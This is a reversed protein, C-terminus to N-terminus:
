IKMAKRLLHDRAGRYPSAEQKQTYGAIISQFIGAFIMHLYHSVLSREAEPCSGHAAMLAPFRELFEGRILLIVGAVQELAIGERHRRAGLGAYFSVPANRSALGTLRSELRELVDRVVKSIREFTVEDRAVLYHWTGPNSHINEMLSITAADADAAAAKLFRKYM